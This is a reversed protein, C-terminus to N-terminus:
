GNWIGVRKRNGELRSRELTEGENLLGKPQHRAVTETRINLRNKTLETEETVRPTYDTKTSVSRQVTPRQWRDIMRPSINWEEVEQGLIGTRAPGIRVQGENRDSVKMRSGERGGTGESDEGREKIEEGRAYTRETQRQIRFMLSHFYNISKIHLLLVEHSSPGIGM